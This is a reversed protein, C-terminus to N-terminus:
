LMNQINIAFSGQQLVVLDNRIIKKCDDRCMHWDVIDVKFPLDSEEFDEDIHARVNWPIDEFFCLDLDSM